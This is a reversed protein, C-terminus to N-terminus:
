VFQIEFPNLWQCPSSKLFSNWRLLAPMNPFSCKAIGSSIRRSLTACCALRGDPAWPVESFQGPAQGAQSTPCCVPLASAPWYDPLALLPLRLWLHGLKRRVQPCLCLFSVTACDLYIPGKDGNRAWLELGRFTRVPTAKTIRLWDREVVLLKHYHSSSEPHHWSPHQDGSFSPMMLPNASEVQDGSRESPVSSYTSNIVLSSKM